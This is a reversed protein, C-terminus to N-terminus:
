HIIMVPCSARESVARSVSGLTKLKSLGSLGVNGIIILDAKEKQAFEIVTDAVNGAAVETRIDVGTTKMVEDKKKNLSDKANEIMMDYVERIYRSLTVTEGTKPSRVPRDIYPSFPYEAIVHLLVVQCKKKDSVIRAISVAHNLAKESPKSSDYPVLIKQYV